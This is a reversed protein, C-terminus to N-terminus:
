IIQSHIIHKLSDFKEMTRIEPLMESIFKLPAHCVSYAM